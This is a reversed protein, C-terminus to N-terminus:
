ACRFPELGPVISKSYCNCGPDSGPWSRSNNLLMGEAVEYVKGNASMHARAFDLETASDHGVEMCPTGSHCWIAFKIGLRTQRNREIASRTHGHILRAIREADPKTVGPIRLLALSLGHVDGGARLATLTETTLYTNYQRSFGLTPIIRRLDARAVREQEPGFDFKLGYPQM